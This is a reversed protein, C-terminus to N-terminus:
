LVGYTRLYMINSNYVAIRISWWSDLLIKNKKSKIADNGIPINDLFKNHM